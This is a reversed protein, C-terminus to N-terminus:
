HGLLPMCLIAALGLAILQGVVGCPNKDEVLIRWATTFGFRQGALAVGLGIGVLFLLAQRMSVSWLMWAFFVAMMAVIPLRKM